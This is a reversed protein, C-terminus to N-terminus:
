LGMLRAPTRRDLQESIKLIYNEVEFMVFVTETVIIIRLRGM